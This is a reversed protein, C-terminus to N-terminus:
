KTVGFIEETLADTDEVEEDDYYPEPEYRKEVQVPKTPLPL